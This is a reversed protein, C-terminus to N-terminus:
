SFSLSHWIKICFANVAERPKQKRTHRQTRHPMTHHPKTHSTFAIEHTLVSCGAVITIGLIKENSVRHKSVFVLAENKNQENWQLHRFSYTDTWCHCRCCCYFCRVKKKTWTAQITHIWQWKNLICLITQNSNTNAAITSWLVVYVGVIIMIVVHQVYYFSSASSSRRLQVVGDLLHLDISLYIAAM